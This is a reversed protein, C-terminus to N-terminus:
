LRAEESKVIKVITAKYVPPNNKKYTMGAMIAAALSAFAVPVAVYGQIEDAIFFAGGLFLGFFFAMVPLIFTFTLEAGTLQKKVNVDVTEGEKANVPNAAELISGPHMHKSCFGCDFCRKHKHLMIKATE